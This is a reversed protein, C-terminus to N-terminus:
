SAVVIALNHRLAWAMNFSQHSLAREGYEPDYVIVASDSVSVVVVAHAQKIGSIPRLDIFAIPYKADEVLARLEGFSLTYKATGNFGLQHAAKIAQLADTGFVPTCDCLERLREETIEFGFSSLAIRLCAPVCSYTTEQRHFRPKSPTV